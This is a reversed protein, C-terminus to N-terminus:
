LRFIERFKRQVTDTQNAGHRRSLEEMSTMAEQYSSGSRRAAQLVLKYNDMAHADENELVRLRGYDAVAVDLRVMKTKILESFVARVTTTNNAGSAALMQSFIELSLVINTQNMKAQNIVLRLNELAQQSDNELRAMTEYAMALELASTQYSVEGMIYSFVGRTDDTSNSGGNAQMIQGFVTVAGRLDIIGQDVHSMILLYNDSAQQNDNEMRELDSMADLRTYVPTPNPPLPGTNGGDGPYPYNGGDGPYPPNGGNRPPTPNTRPPIPSPTQNGDIRVCQLESLMHEREYMIQTRKCERMAERCIESSFINQGLVAGQYQLEMVCHRASASASFCSIALASILLKKM